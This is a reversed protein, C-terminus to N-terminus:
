AEESTVIVQGNKIQIILGFNNYLNYAGELTLKNLM